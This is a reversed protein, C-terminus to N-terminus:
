INGTVWGGVRLRGVLSLSAEWIAAPLSLIVWFVPNGGAEMLARFAPPRM